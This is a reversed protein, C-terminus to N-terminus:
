IVPMDAMVYPFPFRSLWAERWWGFLSNLTIVGDKRLLIPDEGYFQYLFNGESMELVRILWEFMKDMADPLLASPGCTFSVYVTPSIGYAENIIELLISNCVSSNAALFPYVATAMSGPRIAVENDVMRELVELPSLETDLYFTYFISMIPKAKNIGVFM